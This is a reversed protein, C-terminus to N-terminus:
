RRELLKGVVSKMAEFDFPKKLMLADAFGRPVRRSSLADAVAYAEEGALNVDLIAGDLKGRAVLDLGHRV